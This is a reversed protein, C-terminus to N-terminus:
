AIDVVVTEAARQAYLQSLSAHAARTEPDVAQLALMRHTEARDLLYAQEHVGSRPIPESALHYRDTM